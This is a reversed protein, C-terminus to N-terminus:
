ATRRKKRPRGPRTLGLQRKAEELSIHPGRRREEIMKWFKPDNATLLDELDEGEVGILIASPKGGRTLLVRERQAAAVYSSLSAKAHKLAVIKM